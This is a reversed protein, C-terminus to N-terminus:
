YRCTPDSEGTVHVPKGIPPKCVQYTQNSYLTEWGDMRYRIGFQAAKYMDQKSFYVVDYDYRAMLMELAENPFPYVKAYFQFFADYPFLARRFNGPFHAIGKGTAYALQLADGLYIPLIRQISDQDRVFDILRKFDNINKEKRGYQHVFVGAYILYFCASYVLIIKSFLSFSGSTALLLFQPFLIYELYRDAEGLFLFPKLSTILFAIVGALIWSGLLLTLRGASLGEVVLLGALFLLQPNKQVLLLYTNDMLLTKGAKLPDKRLNLFLAKLDSWRNKETILYFRKSIANLYYRAHQIHGSAVEWYHGKSVTWAVGFSLAPLFLWATDRMFVLMVSAFFILVQVGFKSTLMLLGGWFGALVLFIFSKEILHLAACTLTLLFLLEGLTRPTGQYARPGTGVSTLSPSLMYIVSVWFAQQTPDFPVDIVLFCYISFAYVVLAHAADLVASIIREITVHWTTPFLALIYHFLPPYDYIGPLLFPSLTKPLKFHNRRIERAAVLHYEADKGRANPCFIRPLIRTGMVLLVLSALHFGSILQLAAVINGM